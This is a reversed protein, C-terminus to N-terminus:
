VLEPILHHSFHGAFCLGGEFPSDSRVVRASVWGTRSPSELRLCIEHGEPPTLEAFFRAGDRSVDVLLAHSERVEAGDDWLLRAINDSAPRREATRREHPEM